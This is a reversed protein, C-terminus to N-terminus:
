EIQYRTELGPVVRNFKKDDIMRFHNGPIKIEFRVGRGYIGNEIISINTIGLIERILFLGLGTNKGYGRLFIQEKENDPVGQGDDEYIVRPVDGSTDIQLRITTVNGGHRLSNDALNYFVQYILDDAYIEVPPIDCVLILDVSVQLVAREFLERINHWAPEHIGINQYTKSFEILKRMDQIAKKQLALIERVKPETSENEAFFRFGDIVTIKNRIDHRNLSSLLILKETLDSQKKHIEKLETIDRITEIAGILTGKSDYLPSAVTWIYRTGGSSKYYIIEASYIGDEDKVNSYYRSIDLEPKIIKDILMPRKEQYIAQAPSIEGARMEKESTGTLIEMFKNWALVNGSIDIAFTSDPLNELISSLLDVSNALIEKERTLKWVQIQDSIDQVNMILYHDSQDSTVMTLNHLAPFETGDKRIRIAEGTMNGKEEATKIWASIVNKYDPHIQSFFGDKIVEDQTCGHMRAYAKNVIDPNKVPGAIIGAQTNRVIDALRRIEEHMRTEKTIDRIQILNMPIDDLVIRVLRINLNCTGRGAIEVTLEWENEPIVKKGLLTRILESKSKESQEEDDAAWGFLIHAAPNAHIISDKGWLIIGDSANSFLSFYRKESSELSKISNRVSDVMQSVAKSIRNIELHRSPRIPHSLDGKTIKDLDELLSNVPSFIFRSLLYAFTFALVISIILLYIALILLFRKEQQYEKTSYVMKAVHNIYEHAPSEDDGSEIFFFRTISQNQEDVFNRNGKISYLEMVIETDEPNAPVPIEDMNSTIMGTSGILDLELVRPNQEKVQTVLNYLSLVNREKSYDDYIKYTTEVLFKHDPTPQYAFIRWPNEVDFGRVARDLRFTDNMRMDTITQYFPGWQSFDLNLDNKNTAYEAVGSENILIFDIRDRYNPDVLNIIESLNMESPSQSTQKYNELVQNTVVMLPKRYTAEWLMQGKTIRDSSGKLLLETQNLEQFFREDIQRSTENYFIGTISLLSILIIIIFSAMLSKKLSFGSHLLKKINM